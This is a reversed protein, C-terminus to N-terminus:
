KIRWLIREPPNNKIFFIKRPCYKLILNRGISNYIKWILHFFNLILIYGHIVNYSKLRFFIISSIFMLSYRLPFLFHVICLFQCKKVSENANQPYKQDQIYTVIDNYEDEEMIWYQSNGNFWIKLICYKFKCSEISKIIPKFFAWDTM